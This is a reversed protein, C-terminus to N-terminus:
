RPHSMSSHGFQPEGRNMSQPQVSTPSSCLKTRASVIASATETPVTPPFSGASHSSQSGNIHPAPCSRDVHKSPARLTCFREFHKVGPLADAGIGVADELEVEALLRRLIQRDLGGFLNASLLREAKLVTSM